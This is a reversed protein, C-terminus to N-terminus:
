FKSSCLQCLYVFLHSWIPYHAMEVVSPNLLYSWQWYSKLPLKQVLCAYLLLYSKVWNLSKRFLKFIHSIVLKLKNQLDHKSRNKVSIM